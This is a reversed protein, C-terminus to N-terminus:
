VEVKDMSIRMKECINGLESASLNIKGTEKKVYSSYPINVKRAFEKQTCGTLIRIEAITLKTNEKLTIKDLLM